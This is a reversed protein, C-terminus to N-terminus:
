RNSPGPDDRAPLEGYSDPADTFERVDAGCEPCADVLMGRLDRRCEPCRYMDDATPSALRGCETCRGRMPVPRPYQCHPCPRTNRPLPEGAARHIKVLMSVGLVLASASVAIGLLIAAWPAGLGFLWFGGSVYAWAFMLLGTSGALVLAIGIGHVRGLGVGAGDRTVRSLRRMVRTRDDSNPTAPTTSLVALKGDAGRIYRGGCIPCRKAGPESIPKECRACIPMPSDAALNNPEDAVVLLM